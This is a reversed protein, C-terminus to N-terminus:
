FTFTGNMVIIRGFSTSGFSGYPGSPQVVDSEIFGLNSLGADNAPAAFAPHNLFNYAQAGIKFQM